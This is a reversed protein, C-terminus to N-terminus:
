QSHSWIKARLNRVNTLVNLLCNFQLEVNVFHGNFTSVNGHWETNPFPAHALEAGSFTWDDHEDPVFSLKVDPNRGAQINTTPLIVGKNNKIYNFVSM